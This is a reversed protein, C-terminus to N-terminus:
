RIKGPRQLVGRHTRRIATKIRIPLLHQALPFGPANRAKLKVESMAPFKGLERMLSVFSELLANEDLAGQMQNPELGSERIADSWRAWHKGIWDSENIGTEKYFREKGLARGSNATATRRIEALIHQKNMVAMHIYRNLTGLKSAALCSHVALADSDRSQSLHQRM